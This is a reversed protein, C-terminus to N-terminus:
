ATVLINRAPPPPAQLVDGLTDMMARICSPCNEPNDRVDPPCSCGNRWEAMMKQFSENQHMVTAMSTPLFPPPLLTSKSEM